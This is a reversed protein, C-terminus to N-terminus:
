QSADRSLWYVSGARALYRPARLAFIPLVHCAWPSAWCCWSPFGRSPRQRLRAGTLVGSRVLFTGVVVAFTFIALLVTWSKFSGRKETVALSHMLATGTLWPLM